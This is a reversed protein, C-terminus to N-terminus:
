SLVPCTGASEYIIYSKTNTYSVGMSYSAGVTLNTAISAGAAAYYQKSGDGFMLYSGPRNMQINGSSTVNGSSTISLVPGNVSSNGIGFNTGGGWNGVGIDWAIGGIALGPTSGFSSVGSIFSMSAEANPWNPNGIQLQGYSNDGSYISLKGTAGGGGVQLLTAPSSTGIGVKGNDRSLLTNYATGGAVGGTTILRAYIGVPSPYTTTMTLTESGLEEAVAAVLAMALLCLAMRPTFVIMLRFKDIRFQIKHTM